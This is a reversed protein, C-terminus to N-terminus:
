QVMQPGPPQSRPSPPAGAPPQAIAQAVQAAQAAMAQQQLVGVLEAEFQYGAVLVRQDQASLEEWETTLMWRHLVQLHIIPDDFAAVVPLRGSKLADVQRKAKASQLDYDTDEATEWHGMDILELVKARGERTLKGTDPDAFLGAGLIDFVMQRRQAPSEALSSGAEILVDDSTLDSGTWELVEVEGRNAVRAIRPGNSFQRWLRLWMRGETIYGEEVHGATTALRTEDQELAISLAVGSKVGAPAESMKSLDSVGSLSRFEQLCEQLESDFATPLNPFEMYRPPTQNKKYIFAQGADVYHDLIEDENALSNEEMVLQGIAARQLYEAKRNRLANYRDQVPILRSYACDGFFRGPVKLSFFPVLPIDPRGDKGVNYPLDGAHLLTHNAVVIYRGRPYRRSTREFYSKVVAHRELKAVTLKYGTASTGMGRVASSSAQLSYADCPEPQVEKGWMDAIEDVHFARAHIISRQRKFTDFLNDPYIEFSSIVSPDINGERIEEGPGAPQGEQGPQQNLGVVMGLNSNWPELKFATGTAEMWPILESHQERHDTEQEGWQLLKASIEAANIDRQLGSAPRVKRIVRGRNLRALRVEYIPAMQNFARREEGDYLLPTEELTQTVPNIAYFQNGQLYELNQRWQLELPLRDRRRREYERNVLAVHDEAWRADGAAPTQMTQGEGGMGIAGLLRRMGSGISGLLPNTHMTM